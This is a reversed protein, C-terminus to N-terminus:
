RVINVNLHSTPQCTKLHLCYKIANKNINSSFIQSVFVFNACRDCLRVCGYMIFYDGGFGGLNFATRTHLYISTNM